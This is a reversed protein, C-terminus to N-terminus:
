FCIGDRTKSEVGRRMGRLCPSQGFRLAQPFPRRSTEPRYVARQRRLMPRGPSLLDNRCTDGGRNIYNKFEISSSSSLSDRRNLQPPPTRLESSRSYAHARTLALPALSPKKHWQPQPPRTPMAATAQVALAAMNIKAAKEELARAAIIARRRLEQAQAAVHRGAAEVQVARCAVHVAAAAVRHKDDGISNTVRSVILRARQQRRKKDKYMKRRMNQRQAVQRSRNMRVTGWDIGGHRTPRASLSRKALNSALTTQM